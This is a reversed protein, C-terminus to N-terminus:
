GPVPFLVPRLSIWRCPWLGSKFRATYGTPNSGGRANVAQSARPTKSGRWWRRNPGSPLVRHYVSSSAPQTSGADTDRGGFPYAQRYANGGETGVGRDLYQLEHPQSGLVEGSPRTITWSCPRFRSDFGCRGATRPRRATLRSQGSDSRPPRSGIERPAARGTLATGATTESLLSYLVLPRGKGSRDSLNAACRISVLCVPM